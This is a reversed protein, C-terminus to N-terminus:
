VDDEFKKSIAKAAEPDLKRPSMTGDKSSYDHKEAAYYDMIKNIEAIAPIKSIFKVKIYKIEVESENDGDTKYTRKETKTDITEIASMIDPNKEKITEWDTLDIWNDHIQDVSSYAIKALEKVNKIKSVGCLEEINIKILDLYAKIRADELLRTANASASKYKATPYAKMYSQVRNNFLFVHCFMKQQENLLEELELRTYIKEEAM